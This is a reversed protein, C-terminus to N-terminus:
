KIVIPKSEKRDKLNFVAVYNGAPLDCVHLHANNLGYFTEMKDKLVLKGATNYIKVDMSGRENANFSVQMLNPRIIPNPGLKVILNGANASFRVVRIPSLSQRGDLDVTAIEYYHFRYLSLDSADSTSYVREVSSNGAAPVRKIESFHIGDTSKKVSFYDTNQESFTSWDLSVQKGSLRANFNGFSVPVATSVTITGSMGAGGGFHPICGYFYTGEVTVFYSFTTSGSNMPNSWEAAGAPLSTGPLGSGCTTTHSGSSWTFRIEDGVQANVASPSFSFNAVTIDIITAFSHLGSFFFILIPLFKKM